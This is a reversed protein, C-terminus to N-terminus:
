RGAGRQDVIVVDYFDRVGALTTRLIARATRVAAEGPGGALFVITGRSTDRAPFSAFAIAITAGEPQANDRPVAVTGTRQATAVPALVLLAVCASLVLSLCTKREM